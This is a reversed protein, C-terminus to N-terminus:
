PAAGAPVAHRHHRGSRDPRAGHGARHVLAAAGGRRRVDLAGGADYYGIGDLIKQRPTPTAPSCTHEIAPSRRTPRRTSLRGQRRACSRPGTITWARASLGPLVPAADQRSTRVDDPEARVRRHDSVARTAPGASSRRRARRRSRAAGAVRDGDDRRGARHAGGRGHQRDDAVAAAGHIEARVGGGRRHARGHLPVVLRVAHHRLQARGAEGALDARRRLRREVVLLATCDFGKEEHLAGGIVKLTGRGALSFFGGTLATIGVDIDGSVAAAAIPQAAEFFRFQADLGEAAFYGREHRHLAAGALHHAAPRHAAAARRRAGASRGARRPVGPRRPPQAVTMPPMDVRGAADCLGVAKSALESRPGYRRAHGRGKQKQLVDAGREAGVAAPRRRSRRRRRRACRGPRGCRSRCTWGASSRRRAAATRRRCGSRAARRWWASGAAPARGTRSRWWAPSRALRCPARRRGAGRGGGQEVPEAQGPRPGPAGTRRRAAGRRAPARAPARARGAAAPRASWGDPGAPSRTAPPPVPTARAGADHQDAVVPAQQLRQGCGDDPQLAADGAADVAAERM